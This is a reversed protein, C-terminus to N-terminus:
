IILFQKWGTKLNIAKEYSVLCGTRFFTTEIKRTTVTSHNKTTDLDKSGFIM